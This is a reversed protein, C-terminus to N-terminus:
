LTLTNCVSNGGPKSLITEFTGVLSPINEKSNWIWSGNQFFERDERTFGSGQIFQQAAGTPCCPLRQSKLIELESELADSSIDEKTVFLPKAAMLHVALESGVCQLADLQSNGDEIELSLLGAIRGLSNLMRHSNALPQNLITDLYTSLVGPSPASMLFDRRLRVNEGMIAAVETIANQVTTDGSIKPHELNLKLVELSELGVPHVGSVLQSANEVLLALYLFIENRAVFDTKCNLEVVAAMGENQALALLGQDTATRGSKKM